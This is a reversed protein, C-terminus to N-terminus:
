GVGDQTLGTDYSLDELESASEQAQHWHKFHTHMSRAFYWPLLAVVAAAVLFDWNKRVWALKTNM